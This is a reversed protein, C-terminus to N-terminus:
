YTLIENILEVDEISITQIGYDAAIRLAQSTGGKKPTKSYYLIFDSPSKLDEGLVIYSNRAMLKLAFNSLSSPSPHYEKAIEVAENYNKLSDVAIIKKGDAYLENYGQTPIFIQKKASYKAWATDAGVAGGSRLTLNALDLFLSLRHIKDVQVQSIERSGIGSYVKFKSKSKLSM